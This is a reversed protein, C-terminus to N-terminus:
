LKKQRTSMAYTDRLRYNTRTSSNNLSFIYKLQLDVVFVIIKPLLFFFYIYIFNEITWNQTLENKLM